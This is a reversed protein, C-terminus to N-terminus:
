DDITLENDYQLVEFISFILSLDKACQRYAESAAHCRGRNVHKGLKSIREASDNWERVLGLIAHYTEFTKEASISKDDNM